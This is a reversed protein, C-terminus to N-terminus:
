KSTSKTQSTTSSETTTSSTTTSPTTIENTTTSPTTSTTTTIVTTIDTLNCCAYISLTVDQPPQNDITKSLSIMLAGVSQTLTNYVLPYNNKSEVTHMYDGNKDFFTVNIKQVNSGPPIEVEGVAAHTVDKFSVYITPSVADAPFTIGNKGPIVDSTDVSPYNTDISDIYLSSTMTDVKLCLPKTTTTLTTPTTTVKTRTTETGTTTTGNLTTETTATTTTTTSTTPEPTEINACAYISLRVNRPPKDDDTKVIHIVLASIPQEYNTNHVIPIDNKSHIIKITNGHSDVFEVDIEIVNSGPPVEVKDVIATTFTNFSVYITPKQADAPFTIGEHDPNIDDTKLGPYNTVVSDIYLSTSM